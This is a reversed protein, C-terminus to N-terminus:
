EAAEGGLLARKLDADAPRDGLWSRLLAAYFEAGEIPAGQVDGNLTLRTGSEPLYDLYVVDGEQVEELERLLAEFTAIQPRLRAVEEPPTNNDLGDNFADIFQEASVDRLMVLTVRKPGPLDLVEAATRRVEPLYLGVVNVSFFFKKRVGAGNLALPPGEETFRVQDPLKIGSVEAGYAIASLSLMLMLALWKKM